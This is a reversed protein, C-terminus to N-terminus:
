EGLLLCYSHGVYTRVMVVELCLHSACNLLPEECLAVVFYLITIQDRVVGAADGARADVVTSPQAEHMAADTIPLNSNMHGGSDQNLLDDADDSFDSLKDIDELLDNPAVDPEGPPHPASVHSPVDGPPLPQQPALLQPPPKNM